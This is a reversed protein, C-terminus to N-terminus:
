GEVVTTARDFYGKVKRFLALAERKSGYEFEGGENIDDTLTATIHALLRLERKSFNCSIKNDAM